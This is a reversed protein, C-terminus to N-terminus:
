GKNLEHRKYFVRCGFRYAKLKGKSQWKRVTRENVKFFSAVEQQTLYQTTTLPQLDVKLQDILSQVEKLISKRIEESTTPLLFIAEMILDKSNIIFAFIIFAIYKFSVINYWNSVIDYWNPVNHYGSNNKIFLVSLLQIFM